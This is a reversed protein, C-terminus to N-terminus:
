ELSRFVLGQVVRDSTDIWVETTAVVVGGLTKLLTPSHAFEAGSSPGAVPNWAGDSYIFTAVRPRGDGGVLELGLVPGCRGGVASGRSAYGNVEISARHGWSDPGVQGLSVIRFGGADDRAIWIVVTTLDEAVVWVRGANSRPDPALSVAQEFSAGANMSRRLRVVSRGLQADHETTAVEIRDGVRSSAVYSPHAAGLTNTFSRRDDVSIMQIAAESSATSRIAVFVSAGTSTGVISARGPGWFIEFGQAVLRPRSWRGDVLTSHWLQSFPDSEIGEQTVADVAGQGWVVHLRGRDDTTWRPVRIQHPGTPPAIEEGNVRFGRVLRDPLATPGVEPLNNGFAVVEGDLQVLHTGRLLAGRGEVRGLEKWAPACSPASRSGAVAVPQSSRLHGDSSPLLLLVLGVVFCYRMPLHSPPRESARGPHLPRSYM